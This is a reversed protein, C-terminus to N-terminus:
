PSFRFPWPRWPFDRGASDEADLKMRFDRVRLVAVASSRRNMKSMQLHGPLQVIPENMSRAMSVCERAPRSRAPSRAGDATADIGRHGGRQHRAGDAVPQGSHEDVVAQQALVFEFFHQRNKSVIKVQVYAADIRCIPEEVQEGSHGIGFRLPLDDAALENADKLFFGLLDTGDVKEHLSRDIRIDDFRNRHLSRRLRDLRVVIDAPQRFPHM